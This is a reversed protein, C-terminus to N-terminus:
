NTNDYKKAIINSFLEIYLHEKNKILEHCKKCLLIGNRESYRLHVSDAWRVIHHVQLKRKAGCSPMQCYKDRKRISKRFKAYIGTYDKRSKDYNAQWSEGTYKGRRKRWVM